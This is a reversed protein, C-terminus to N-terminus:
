TVLFGVGAHFVLAHALVGMSLLVESDELQAFATAGARQPAAGAAVMVCNHKHTCDVSACGSWPGHSLCLNLCVLM